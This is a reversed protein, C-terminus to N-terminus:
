SWAQGRCSGFSRGRLKPRTPILVSVGFLAISLVMAAFFALLAHTAGNAIGGVLLGGAALTLFLYLAITGRRTRRFFEARDRDIESTGGSM